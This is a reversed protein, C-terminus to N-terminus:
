MFLFKEHHEATLVMVNLHDIPHLPGSVVTKNSVHVFLVILFLYCFCM